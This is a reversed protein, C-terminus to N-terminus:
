VKGYLTMAESLQKFAAINAGKIYNVKGKHEGYKVCNNHIDKMIKRLEEDVRDIDWPMMSRNQSIELGSVAVGGANAAKGPAVVISQKAFLKLAGDTNPMNAGEIVYRCGNDILRQADREGLENQTACAFALDCAQQWPKQEDHYEIDLKACIEQLSQRQAKGRQIKTLTKHNLGKAFVATGGRDSLTLVQAELEILKEATHLAVNGAGSICCRKDKLSDNHHALIEETFYVAGYGTAEQRGCSGGFAPSKGTLASEFRGTISKYHDFMFAIERSGVGIDGAPIDTSPGIHRALETIFAQCFRRIEEDSRGHPNFNAGGKAGGLPLGTLANKFCQEFGLFFLVDLDVSDSFRLGGKYPGLANNYQVRFGRHTETQNQDNRWDVRFDIVRDPQALYKLIEIGDKDDNELLYPIVDEAVDRTAQHFATYNPYLTKVYDEFSELASDAPM